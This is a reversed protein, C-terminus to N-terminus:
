CICCCTLLRPINGWITHDILFSLITLPAYNRTVTETAIGWLNAPSWSRILDNQQVYSVDDWNVFDFAVSQWLTVLGLVVLTANQFLTQHRKLLESM